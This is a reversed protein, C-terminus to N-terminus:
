RATILRIALIILFVMLGGIYIRRIDKIKDHKDSRLLNLTSYFIVADLSLIPPLYEWQLWGFIFPVASGVIVVGFISASVKIATEPGYIVALSRSGTKRDGEVDLADAAIEEGLDVLLTTMALYWVVAEFTNGVVLGGFIFTMGVSFAVFLNGFLGSKKFRWNYLFGIIWVLVVILFADFGLLLSSSFGALTVAIALTMAEAKTILGAPLPRSPSNIRDTEIDFYDNFILAAAAIFFFSLFGLTVQGSTPLTGLALVEGLVVCVGATFPLEFRFLQFFATLKKRHM